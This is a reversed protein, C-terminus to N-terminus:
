WTGDLLRLGAVIPTASTASHKIRVSTVVGAATPSLPNPTPNDAPQDNAVVTVPVVFPNSPDQTLTSGVVEAASAGACWVAAFCAAGTVIGTLGLMKSRM